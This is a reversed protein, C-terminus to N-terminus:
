LSYILHDITNIFNTESFKNLHTSRALNRKITYSLGEYKEVAKAIDEATSNEFFVGTNETITELAGGRKYAIVPCGLTQAELSVYGFDEEQPMIFAKAGAYLWALENDTVSSIFHINESAISRLYKEESGKGVVVLTHHPLLKFANLAIDINKYPELRSVILYYPSNFPLVYEKKELSKWYIKNFPPYVVESDRQYYKRVRKQVASSIALTKDARQAAIYDWERFSSIFFSYIFSKTQTYDHKQAWFYRTPTLLISLHKTPPKTIVGKAFSSSVSLVFDYSSFDFSEFAYPYFFVSALRSKRIFPPLRQIFSTKLPINEAWKANKIDSYSTYFDAKPFHNYLQLLLREVGGMKDVWDYVIAIKKSKM